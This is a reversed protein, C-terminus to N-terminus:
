VIRYSNGQKEIFDERSLRTLIKLLTDKGCGIVNEFERMAASKKKLLIAIIKGRLERHSGRFPAQKAYHASRKNPNGTKKRLAAGYDMLAWYWERPNKRDLTRELFGLIEKDRVKGRDPFFWHIFARRINTEVFPVPINFAFACVAGATASGVGPLKLLLRPSRPLKGQHEGLVVASLRLLYLARRNYGLGQWAQLVDRLPAAALVRFNPFTRLFDRYKPIVRSVQTQQLMIESVLVRYPNRTSRWPLDRRHRRYHERITKRFEVLKRDSPINM